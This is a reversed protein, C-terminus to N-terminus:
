LEVRQPQFGLKRYHLFNTRSQQLLEPTQCVLEIVRDLQDVRPAPQMCLNILVSNDQVPWCDIGLVVPASPNDDFRSHPMFFQPRLHWLMDDMQALQADDSCLVFVPLGALWARRVLRCALTLRAQPQSDQSVYFDIRM